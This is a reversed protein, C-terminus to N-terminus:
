PLIFKLCPTQAQPNQWNSSLPVVAVGGLEAATTDGGGVVVESERMEACSIANLERPTNRKWYFDFTM